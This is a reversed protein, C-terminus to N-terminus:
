RMRMFTILKSIIFPILTNAFRAECFVHVKEPLVSRSLAKAHIYKVAFNHISDLYKCIPNVLPMVKELYRLVVEHMRM